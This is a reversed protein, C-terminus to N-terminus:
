NAGIFALPYRGGDMNLIFPEFQNSRVIGGDNPLSGYVYLKNEDIFYGYIVGSEIYPFRTIYNIIVWGKFDIIEGIPNSFDVPDFVAVNYRTPTTSNTGFGAGWFGGLIIINGSDNELLSYATAGGMFNFTSLGFPTIQDSPYVPDFTTKDVVMIGNCSKTAASYNKSYGSFTAPGSLLWLNNGVIFMRAIVGNNSSSQKIQPIWGLSVPNLPDSVDYARSVTADASSAWFYVYSTSPDVCVALSYLPTRVGNTNPTGNIYAPVFTVGLDIPTLNDEKFSIIATRASVSNGFVDTYDYMFQGTVYFTQTSSNYAIQSSYMLGGGPFLAGGPSNSLPTFTLSNIKIFSDLVTDYVVIGACDSTTINNYTVTTFQGTIVIKTAGSCISFVLGNFVPSFPLLSGDSTDISAMRNRTQSNMSTFTGALFLATGIKATAYIVGNPKIDKIM